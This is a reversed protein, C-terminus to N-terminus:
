AASILRADEEQAIRRGEEEDVLTLLFGGLIFLVIISLVAPRPSPTGTVAATLGIVAGFIVPGVIGAFKESVSFFGFFEGSKAKPAMSAYLSRSLAQSGGQVVGVMWALLWFELVSDLFFGWVAVVSYVMLALLISRKTTMTGALGGMWEKFVFWSLALGLAENVALIALIALINSQRPPALVEILDFAMRTGTADPNRRSTNRIVLTHVGADLQEEGDVEVTAEVTYPLAQRVDPSLGDLEVPRTQGDVKEMLPEGDLELAAIGYDLGLARTIRVGHGNFAIEASAGPDDTVAYSAGGIMETRWRGQLAIAPDDNQYIGSGVADGVAAYPPFPAGTVEPPLANMLAVGLLPLTVFNWLIFALFFARNVDAHSPIRGFMISFPIGVFQVLLLAGVIEVSGLGLAAGYIAAVGIITGIGDNYLWFALLFKLLERYNRIEQFTRRLRAFSAAIPNIRRDGLDAAPPEPVQRLIPVSFVAWWVAVSLFSLRAGWTGPLVFIMVVNVALLIGGGLYGMAYGRTSLGDMDDPRAVHPLLASYFINATGFGIRGIIFLVSALLWDGTEVLVLLATGAIGVGAAVALLPKKGRKVDAVAGLIPSLVAVILLAIALTTSWYGAAIAKSAEVTAAIGVGAVDSYYTPLVAAGVTTIFASNAWDYLTWARCRRRYTQEDQETAPLWATATM